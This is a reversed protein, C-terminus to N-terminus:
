VNLVSKSANNLPTRHKVIGDSIPKKLFKDAQTKNLQLL